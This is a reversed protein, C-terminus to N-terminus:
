IHERNRRSILNSVYFYFIYSIGTLAQLFYSYKTEGKKRRRHSVVCQGIRFGEKRFLYPMFMFFKRDLRISEIANRKYIKLTCGSDYINDNLILKRLFFGSRSCFRKFFPDDRYKRYGFVVDLKKRKMNSYLVFIDWPDNQGDGDLTVILDFRSSRVGTRIAPGQGLNKRHRLYRVNELNEVEDFINESSGDDVIIIEYDSLNDKLRNISDIVDRINDKENYVPIIFSIRENIKM